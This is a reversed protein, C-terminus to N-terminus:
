NGGYLEYFEKYKKKSEYGIYKIENNISSSMDLGLVNICGILEDVNDFQISDDVPFFPIESKLKLVPKGSLIYTFLMTTTHAIIFKSSDLDKSFESVNNNITYNTISDAPHIRLLVRKSYKVAYEEVIDIMKQNYDHMRPLDMAIGITHEDINYKKKDISPNGCVYCNLKPNNDLFQKKTYDGWFLAFKAKVNWMNLCDYTSNDIQPVFLAHQLTVTHIGCSNAWQILMSEEQWVDCLVTVFKTKSIDLNMFASYIGLGTILHSYIILRDILSPKVLVSDNNNKPLEIMRTKRFVDFRSIFMILNRYNFTKNVKRQIRSKENLEELASDLLNSYDIREISLFFLINSTSNYYFYKKILMKAVAHILQSVKNRKNAKISYYQYLIDRCCCKIKSNNINM